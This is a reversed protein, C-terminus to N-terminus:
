SLCKEKKKGGQLGAKTDLEVPIDNKQPTGATSHGDAIYKKMLATLWRVVSRDNM